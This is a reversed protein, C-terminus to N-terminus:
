KDIVGVCFNAMKNLWVLWYLFSEKKDCLGVLAPVQFLEMFSKRVQLLEMFSKLNLMAGLLVFEMTLDTAQKVKFKVLKM